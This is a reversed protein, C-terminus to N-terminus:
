SNRSRRYQSFYRFHDQFYTDVKRINSHQRHGHGEPVLTFHRPHTGWSVSCRKNKVFVQHRVYLSHEGHVVKLPLRGCHTDTLYSFGKTREKTERMPIALREVKKGPSAADHQPNVHPITNTCRSNFPYPPRRHVCSHPLLIIERRAVVMISGQSTTFATPAKQIGTDKM